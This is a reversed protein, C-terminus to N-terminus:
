PKKVASFVFLASPKLYNNMLSTIANKVKLTNFSIVLGVQLNKIKNIIYYHM